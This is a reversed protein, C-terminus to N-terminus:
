SDLRAGWGGPGSTQTVGFYQRLIGDAAHQQITLGVVTIDAPPNQIEISTASWSGSTTAAEHCTIVDSPRYWSVMVEVGDTGLYHLNNVLNHAAPDDTMAALVAEADRVGWGEILACFARAEALVSADTEPSAPAPNDTGTGLMLHWVIQGDVVRSVWLGEEGSGDAQSAVVPIAVWDAFVAAPSGCDISTFQTAALAAVVAAHGRQIAEDEQLVLGTSTPEGAPVWGSEPVHALQVDDALHDGIAPWAACFERVAGELESPPPFLDPDMTTTPYSSEGDAIALAASTLSEGSDSSACAALLCLAAAGIPLRAVAADFV